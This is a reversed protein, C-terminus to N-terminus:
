GDGDTDELRYIRETHVTLDKWDIAGDGNHDNLSGEPRLMKGPALVEHYFAKKQEIDEFGVDNPIWQTHERIDLDAVKRRTTQTVYVRGQPDVTCAVPDPVNIDGSWKHLQLVNGPPPAPDRALAPSVIILLLLLRLLPMAPTVQWAKQKAHTCARAAGCESSM